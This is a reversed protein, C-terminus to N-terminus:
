IWERSVHPNCVLLVKVRTGQEEARDYAEKYSSVTDTSFANLPEEGQLSSKPIRSNVPIIKAEARTTLDNDFANQSFYLLVLTLM